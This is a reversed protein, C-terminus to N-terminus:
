AKALIPFKVQAFYFGGFFLANYFLDGLVSYNFFPIGATYCTMLGAMNQTYFPSIYWIAFNTIIFFLISSALSAGAVTWINTKKRLILGISVTIAFSIYVPIIYSHLGIISDSIFMIIIPIFFALWKRSIYTGGFLAIAAVPTFNPLHPILRMVVAILIISIVFIFRPTIQKTIM